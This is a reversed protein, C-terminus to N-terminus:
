EPLFRCGFRGRRERTRELERARARAHRRQHIAAHDRNAVFWVAAAVEASAEKVEEPIIRECTDLNTHHTMSNYEIPDQRFGIGPLGANNYSTSGTGGTARSNIATVAGLGWDKFLAFVPTRACRM